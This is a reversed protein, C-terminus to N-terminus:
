PAVGHELVNQNGDVTGFGGHEGYGLRSGQGLSEAADHRCQVHHVRIGEGAHASIKGVALRLVEAGGRGFGICGQVCRALGHGFRAHRHGGHYTLAVCHM